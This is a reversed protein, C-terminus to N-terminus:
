LVVSSPLCGMLSSHHMCLNATSVLYPDRTNNSGQGSQKSQTRTEVLQPRRYEVALWTLLMWIIPANEMIISQASEISFSLIVDWDFRDTELNTARWYDDHLLTDMERKIHKISQEGFSRQVLSMISSLLRVLSASKLCRSAM